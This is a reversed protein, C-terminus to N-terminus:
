KKKKFRNIKDVLKNIRSFYIAHNHDPYIIKKEGKVYFLVADVNHSLSTIIGKIGHYHNGFAVRVKFKKKLFNIREFDETQINKLFKTHVLFIRKKKKKFIKLCNKIDKNTCQGTSIFINKVKSDSIKKILDLKKIDQNIIKFFDIKIKSFFNIKKKECIAIGFLKNKKKCLKQAYLYFKDNLDFNNINKEKYYKFKEYNLLFSKERIQFSIGDINNKLIKKLYSKAYNEKGLHNLGVEAIILPKDKM